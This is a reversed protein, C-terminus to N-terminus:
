SKQGWQVAASITHFNRRNPELVRSAEVGYVKGEARHPIHVDDRKFFSEAILFGDIAGDQNYPDSNHNHGHEAYLGHKRVEPERKEM